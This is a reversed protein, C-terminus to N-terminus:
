ENEEDSDDGLSFDDLLIDEVADMKKSKADFINTEEEDDQIKTFVTHDQGDDKILYEASFFPNLLTETHM